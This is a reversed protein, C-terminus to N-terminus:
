GNKDTVMLIPTYPNRVGETAFVGYASTMDLLSVEGGGLVLTLGYTNEDGAMNVGMSTALNLSDRVGALYLTKVSPVNRSQGLADRLTVPGKYKDDYNQPSYCPSGSEM